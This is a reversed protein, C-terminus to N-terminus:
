EKGADKILDDVSCGFYGAVRVLNDFRPSSLKWGKITANGLGVAKELASISIGREKCLKEIKGYLM